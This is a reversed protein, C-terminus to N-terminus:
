VLSSSLLADSTLDLWGPLLSSSLLLSLLLLLLLMLLLLLRYSQAKLNMSLDWVFFDITAGAFCLLAVYGGRSRTGCIKTVSWDSTSPPGEM